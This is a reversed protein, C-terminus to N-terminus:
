RLVRLLTAQAAWRTSSTTTCTATIPRTARLSTSTTILAKRCCSWNDRMILSLVLRHDPHHRRAARQLFYVYVYITDEDRPKSQLFRESKFKESLANYKIQGPSIWWLYMYIRLRSTGRLRWVVMLLVMQLYATHKMHWWIAFTDTLVFVMMMVDNSM